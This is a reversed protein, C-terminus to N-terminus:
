GLKKKDSFSFYTENLSVIIHDVMKIECLEAIRNIKRTFKLDQKSPSCSGSPHSHYLVFSSANSKFLFRIIERPHVECHDVCGRFVLETALANLQANLAVVWVEEIDLRILEKIHVFAKYSTNIM